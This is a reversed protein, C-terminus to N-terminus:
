CQVKRVQIHHTSEDRWISQSGSQVLTVYDWENMYKADLLSTIARSFTEEADDSFEMLIPVVGQYLALRQKVRVENTFAYITSSPRYHSLLVAMSGVRTFVIIPTRLTNAMMTAHSGFM